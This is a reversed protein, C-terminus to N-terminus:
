RGLRRRPRRRSRPQRNRVAHVYQRLDLRADRRVPNDGAAASARARRPICCDISASSPPRRPQKTRSRRPARREGHSDRKSWIASWRNSTADSTASRPTNPRRSKSSPAGALTALRRAIETKGVGTPGIMLINKPTIEDRLEERCLQERRYRNRMAIAVARKAKAQGVIYNDLEAVIQRPTLERDAM